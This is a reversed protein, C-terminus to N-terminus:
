FLYDNGIQIIRGDDAAAIRGFTTTGRETLFRISPTADGAEVGGPVVSTLAHHPPAALPSVL